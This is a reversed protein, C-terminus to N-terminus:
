TTMWRPILSVSSIGGSFTMTSHGPPITLWDGGVRTGLPIFPDNPDSLSGKYAIKSESDMCIYSVGEFNNVFMTQSGLMITGEGTGTIRMLPQSPVNGPNTLVYPTNTITIESQGGDLYMFPSCAFQVSFSLHPNGKVIQAFSLQNALRAKFFGEQRNAFKVTGSGRLWESITSIRSANSGNVVAYPNDIICICSFSIDDYVNDGELITISGSRGPISGMQARENPTVMTPQSLVHMGYETCKVGNWEFWDIESLNNAM